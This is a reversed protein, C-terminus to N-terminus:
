VGSMVTDYVVGSMMTDYAVGSMVMHGCMVAGMMTYYVVVGSM